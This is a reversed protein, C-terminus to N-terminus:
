RARRRSLEPAKESWDFLEVQAGASGDRAGDIVRLHGYQRGVPVVTASGPGPRRMFRIFDFAMWGVGAACVSYIAVNAVLFLTESM